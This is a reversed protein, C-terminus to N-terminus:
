HLRSRYNKLYILPAILLRKWFLISSPKTYISNWNNITIKSNTFDNIRQIEVNTNKVLSEYKVDLYQFQNKKLYNILNEKTQKESKILFNFDYIIRKYTQSLWLSFSNRSLIIFKVDEKDLLSIWYGITIWLKPDKIVWPSYKKCGILYNNFISCDTSDKLKEFFKRDEAKYWSFSNFSYNALNCLKENLKVFEESEFTNYTGTSNNKVVTNIGTWYGALKFLGTLVSSGSLGTTLIIVNFANQTDDQEKM